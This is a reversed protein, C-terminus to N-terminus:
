RLGSWYCTCSLQKYAQKDEKHLQIWCAKILTLLSKDPLLIVLLCFSSYPSTQFSKGRLELSTGVRSGKTDQQLVLQSSKSFLRCFMSYLENQRTTCLYGHSYRLVNVELYPCKKVGALTRGSELCCLGNTTTTSPNTRLRFPHEEGRGRQNMGGVVAQPAVQMHRGCLKRM